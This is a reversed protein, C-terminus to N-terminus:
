AQRSNAPHSSRKEPDFSDIERVLDLVSPSECVPFVDWGASVLVLATRTRVHLVKELCASGLPSIEQRVMSLPDQRELLVVFSDPSWLFLQDRAALKQALHVSYFLLVEAAAAKGYRELITRFRQLRFLAAYAPAKRLFASALAKQAIGRGPLGTVPDRAPASETELEVFGNGDQEEVAASTTQASSGNLDMQRMKLLQGIRRRGSVERCILAISEGNTPEAEDIPAISDVIYSDEADGATLIAQGILNVVTREKLAKELAREIQTRQVAPLKPFLELLSMGVAEGAKTGTAREAAPNLFTVKGEADAVLVADDVGQLVGSFYDQKEQLKKEAQRRALAIEINAPLEREQFPKLIYGLPQTAKAREVTADDANGTLYVVPIGLQARLQGATEIGDMKGALMVDM